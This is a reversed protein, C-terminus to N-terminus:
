IQRKVIKGVLSESPRKRTKKEDQRPKEGRDREGM